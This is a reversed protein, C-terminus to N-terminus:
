WGAVVPNSLAGVGEVEVTIEDGPKMFEPPNRFAGVGGPTGTTVIDGPQLTVSRTLFELIHPIKVLMQDTSADQKVVGNLRTTIRRGGIDGLEDATIVHPGIPCFTDPSKCLMIQLGERAMVDRASVDNVMTYGFVYDWADEASVRHATRSIVFALEAEWDTETREEPIRISEGPGIVASWLGPFFVPEKPNILHSVEALHNAYNGGTLIVQCHDAVPALMRDPTVVHRGDAIRNDITHRDAASAGIYDRLDALGTDAVSGDATLAGLHRSGNKEFAVFKMTDNRM